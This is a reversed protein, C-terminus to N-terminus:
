STVERLRNQQQLWSRRASAEMIKLLWPAPGSELVQQLESMFVPAATPVGLRLPHLGAKVLCAAAPGGITLAVLVHCDALAQLRQEYRQGRDGDCAPTRIDVLRFEQASVQYVLYRQCAGFPGDIRDARNSACAVRISGPMDASALPSIPPLDPLPTQGQGRLWVLVQRLSEDSCHDLRGRAAERLRKLRLRGLRQASVPQGVSRILIAVFDALSISIPLSRWALGIRLAIDEQLGATTAM